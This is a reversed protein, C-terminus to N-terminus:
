LCAELVGLVAREVKAHPVVDDGNAARDVFRQFLKGRDEAIAGSIQSLFVDLRAHAANNQHGHAVLQARHQEGGTVLGFHAHAIGGDIAVHIAAVIRELVHELHLDVPEGVPAVAMNGAIAKAGSSFDNGLRDDFLCGTGLQAGVLGILVAQRGIRHEIGDELADDFVLQGKGLDDSLAM